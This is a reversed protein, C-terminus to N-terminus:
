GDDRYIPPEVGELDILYGANPVNRILRPDAPDAEVKHRL